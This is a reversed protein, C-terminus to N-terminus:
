TRMGRTWGNPRYGWHAERSRSSPRANPTPPVARRISIRSGNYIASPLYCFCFASPLVLGHQEMQLRGRLLRAHRSAARGWAHARRRAEVTVDFVPTESDAADRFEGRPVARGRRSRPPLRADLRPDAREAASSQKLNRVDSRDAARSRAEDAAIILFSRACSARRPDPGRPGTTSFRMSRVSCRQAQGRRPHLSVSSGSTGSLQDINVRIANVTECHCIASSWWWGRRHRSGGAM